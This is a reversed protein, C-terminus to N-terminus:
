NKLATRGYRGLRERCDKPGLFLVALALRAAYEEADLSGSGAFVLSVPFFGFELRGAGCPGCRCGAGGCDGQLAIM